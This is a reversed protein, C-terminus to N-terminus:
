RGDDIVERATTRVNTATQQGVGRVATLADVSTYPLRRGDFRRRLRGLTVGGVHPVDAVHTWMVGEEVTTGNATSEYSPSTCSPCATSGIPRGTRDAVDHVAGCDLCTATVGM